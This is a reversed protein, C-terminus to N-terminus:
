FFSVAYSFTFVPGGNIATFEQGALRFDVTMVSDKPMGSAKASEQSYRTVGKIGSNKFVSIYFNVAEEAENNFWLFPSIKQRGTGKIKEAPREKTQTEM